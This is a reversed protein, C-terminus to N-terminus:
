RCCGTAPAKRKVAEFEKMASSKAARAEAFLADRFEDHRLEFGGGAGGVDASLLNSAMADLPLALGKDTRRAGVEGTRRPVVVPKGVKERLVPAVGGLMCNVMTAFENNSMATTGGPLCTLAQRSCVDSAMFWTAAALRELAASQRLDHWQGAPPPKVRICRLALGREAALEM